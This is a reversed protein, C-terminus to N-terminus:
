RDPLMEVAAPSAGHLLPSGDTVLTQKTLLAADASMRNKWDDVGNANGAPPKPEITTAYIKAAGTSPTTAEPVLTGGPLASATLSIAVAPLGM